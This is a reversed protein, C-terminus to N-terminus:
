SWSAGSDGIRSRALRRLLEGGNRLRMWCVIVVSALAAYGAARAALGPLRHVAVGLVVAAAGAVLSSVCARRFDAVPFGCAIFTVLFYCWYYLVALAAFAWTVALPDIWRALAAVLAVSVATFSAELAFAAHQRRFSDFARDLWCTTALLLAPAALARLYPGTGAWKGSLLQDTLEPAELAFGVYPTILLVFLAEVLGAAFRGVAARSGRSAIAFFIPSISSYILTNPAFAVRYALGFRGVVATGAGLAFVMQILRDRASSALAYGVMYTPFRRYKRAAFRLARVSWGGGPGRWGRAGWALALTQTALACVYGWILAPLQGLVRALALQAVVTVLSLLFQGAGLALFRAGRVCWSSLCRQLAGILTAVALGNAFQAANSLGRVPAWPLYPTLYGIVAILLAVALAILLVLGSLARAVWDERPLVIAFDYRVGALVGVVAIAGVFLVFEGYPGPDFIRSYLPLTGIVLLQGAATM